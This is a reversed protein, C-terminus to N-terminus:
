RAILESQTLEDADTADKMVIRTTNFHIVDSQVTDFFLVNERPNNIEGRLVADKYIENIEQRGPLKSRDVGAVRFCMTMPQCFGDEERGKKCPVGAMYAVDADGTCDIYIQGKMDSHGSKNVISISEIISDNKKNVSAAYTHFLIDIDAEIIMRNLVLKMIEADFVTKGKLGGLENLRNLIEQFIGFVIQNEDTFKERAKFYSMFPNVLGTTAM